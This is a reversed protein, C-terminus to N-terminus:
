RGLRFEWSGRGGATLVLGWGGATDEQAAGRAPQRIAGAHGPFKRTLVPATASTRRVTLKRYIGRVRCARNKHELQKLLLCASAQSFSSRFPQKHWMHLLRYTTQGAWCSMYDIFGALCPWWRRPQILNTALIGARNASILMPGVMRYRGPFCRDPRPQHASISRNKVPEERCLSPDLM